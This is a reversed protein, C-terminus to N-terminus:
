LSIKHANEEAKQEENKFTGQANGFIYHTQDYEGGRQVRELNIGRDRNVWIKHTSEKKLDM